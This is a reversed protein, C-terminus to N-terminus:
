SEFFEPVSEAATLMHAFLEPNNLALQNVPQRLDENFHSRDIGYSICFETICFSSQVEHWNRCTPYEGDWDFEGIISEFFPFWAQSERIEYLWVHWPKCFHLFSPFSEKKHDVCYQVFAKVLQTLTTTPTASVTTM